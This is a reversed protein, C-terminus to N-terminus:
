ARAPSRAGIGMDQGERSVGFGLPRGCINMTGVIKSGVIMECNTETVDDSAIQRDMRHRGCENQM